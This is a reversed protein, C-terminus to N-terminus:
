KETPLNFPLESTVHKIFTALEEAAAVHNEFIVDNNKLIKDKIRQRLTPDNAITVAKQAYDEPSTAVCELTDLMKCYLLGVRGRMFEGPMTVLPTGVSFTFAGTSGIGFHFPDLVVGSAANIRMFDDADDVWEHFIIRARLTSPITQEFRQRLLEGWRAHVRSEFLVIYGAPDLELVRALTADFEPHLKQIMMPCLYITGSEPLGLEQRSKTLSPMEPRAMSFGGSQLRILKEAYHSDGDDPEALAPSLFYDLNPIGTTVPHGGMVCQIKALRSFALLYSFPDMGIDMYILVDLEFSSIFQRARSLDQPVSVFAGDLNAYMKKVDDADHSSSSILLIEFEVQKSITEIVKSFSLAVSHKWIFKSFFGIRIKPKSKSEFAIHPSVFALSPAFKEYLMAIKSQLPRDNCAHYALYFNVGLQEEYPNQITGELNNLFYDLATDLKERVTLTEYTSKMVPPTSLAYRIRLSTSPNLALARKFAAEAEAEYGRGDQVIGMFLWGDVFDPDIKLLSNLSEVAGDHHECQVQLRILEVLRQSNQPTLSVIKEYCKIARLFDRRGVYVNAMTRFADLYDPTLDLARLCSEIAEATNGQFYHVNALNNHASPFDPNVALARNIARKADDLKLREIYAAGLNNWAAPYSPRLTIAKRYATEADDYRGADRLANGLNYHSEPVSPKLAIAERFCNIALDFEKTAAYTSGMNVLIVHNKPSLQFAIQFSAIAERHRGSQALVTGLLSAADANKPSTNLIRRCVGEADTLRGAQQHQQALNLENQASWINM